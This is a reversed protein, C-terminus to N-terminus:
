KAVTTVPWDLTVTGDATKVVTQLDIPHGEAEAPFQIVDKLVGHKLRHTPPTEKDEVIGDFSFETTVVGDLPKGAADTARVEYTWNRGAVPHHNEGTLTARVPGKTINSVPGSSTTSPRAAPAVPTRRPHSSGCASLALALVAAGCWIGLPRQLM